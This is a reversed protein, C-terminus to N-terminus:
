VSEAKMSEDRSAHEGSVGGEAKPAGGKLRSVADRLNKMAFTKNGRSITEAGLSWKYLNKILDESFCNSTMVVPYIGQIVRVHM